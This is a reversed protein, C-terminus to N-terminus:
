PRSRTATPLTRKAFRAAHDAWRVRSGIRVDLGDFPIDGGLCIMVTADRKLFFEELEQPPVIELELLPVEPISGPCESM